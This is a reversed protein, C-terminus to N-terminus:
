RRLIGDIEIQAKRETVEDKSHCPQEIAVRLGGNDRQLVPQSEVGVIRLVYRPQVKQSVCLQQCALRIACEVACRPCECEPGDEARREFRKDTARHGQTAIFPSASPECAHLLEVSRLAM